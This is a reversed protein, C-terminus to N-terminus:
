AAEFLRTFRSRFGTKGVERAKLRNVYAVTDEISIRQEALRLGDYYKDEVGYESRPILERDDKVFKMDVIPYINNYRCSTLIGDAFLNVHGHTIVNYYNVPEHVVCKDVLRVEEGRINFTTTGLPTDDTMPYTFRGMEKNFIRHQNITKLTSGDSFTLLNYRDTQETRKIWLPHATAFRGDDFNWVCLLDSYRIDEIKKLSGDALTVLTGEALCIVNYASLEAGYATGVSNTAYARMYYTVNGSSVTHGIISFAGTGSGAPIDTSGAAGLTPPRDANLCYVFGRATVPAGGDDVVTGMFDMRYSLDQDTFSDSTVTPLSFTCCTYPPSCGGPGIDFSYDMGGIHVQGSAGNEVSGLTVTDGNLAHAPKIIGLRDLLDGIGAEITLCQDGQYNLPYATNSVPVGTATFLDITTSCTTSVVVGRVQVGASQGDEAPDVCVYVEDYGGAYAPQVVTNLARAVANGTENRGTLVAANGAAPVYMTSSIAHAPLVVANIVPKAWKAPLATATTAVAGAGAGALVKILRRRSPDTAHQDNETM